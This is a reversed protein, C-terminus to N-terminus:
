GTRESRGFRPRFLDYWFPLPDGWAFVADARVGQWSRWCDRLSLEGRRWHYLASQLDRRAYVWKARGYKQERHPPLPLGARDCYQTYVLEVGGAEAIASRGTPRGINPEIVYHRGDRASRKMEVYGLGHLRVARFLKLTTELVEDNRCEEGLCSTGTEPPWQRLKRAVFTAVASGREDFYANCSYLASEPGPVYEQALLHGAWASCRDYLHLLEQAHSVKFAKVTTHSQWVPSKYPPKLICPFDLTEAAREADRRNGLLMLRPVPLGAQEAFRHFRVKDVMMEVVEAPPLALRGLPDVRHRNRSLSLVHLDSCPFLVPKRPGPVCAEELACLLGEDGPRAEIVRACVNTRACYHTRDAVIGLVSVGHRALIRATQLGTICDLGIVIAPPM